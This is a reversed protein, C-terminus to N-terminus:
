LPCLLSPLKNWWRQAQQHLMLGCHGLCSETLSLSVALTPLPKPVLVSRCPLGCDCQVTVGLVCDPSGHGRSMPERGQRLSMLKFDPRAFLAGPCGWTGCHPRRERRRQPRGEAKVSHFLCTSPHLRSGTPLAPSLPMSPSFSWSLCPWGARAQAGGTGACLM